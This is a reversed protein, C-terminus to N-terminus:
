CILSQLSLFLHALKIITPFFFDFTNKSSIKHNSQVMSKEVRNNSAVYVYPVNPSILLFGHTRSVSAGLVQTNCSLGIVKRRYQLDLKRGTIVQVNVNM